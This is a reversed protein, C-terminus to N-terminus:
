QRLGKRKELFEDLVNDHRNIFLDNGNLHMEVLFDEIRENEGIEIFSHGDSNEVLIAGKDRALGIMTQLQTKVTKGVRLNTNNVELAFGYQLSLDVVADMELPFTAICPHVLIDLPYRKLYNALAKTNKEVSREAILTKAPLHFGASVLDFDRRFREPFDSNGDVDLINTEIGALITVVGGNSSMLDKPLRRKDSLVAFSMERGAARGHDSINVLRMEKRSAIEVIELITHIGCLSQISHVHLDNRIM